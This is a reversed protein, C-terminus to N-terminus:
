AAAVIAKYRLSPRGKGEAKIKGVVEIKGEALWKKVIPHLMPQGLGPNHAILFKMTFEEVPIEVKCKAKMSSVGGVNVSKRQRPFEIRTEEKEAQLKVTEKFVQMARDRTVVEWGLKGFSASGPYSETATTTPQTGKAYTTGAKVTKVIIIEYSFVTGDMRRREYLVVDNNRKLQKFVMDGTSDANTIFETQLPMSAKYRPISDTTMYLTHGMVLHFDLPM